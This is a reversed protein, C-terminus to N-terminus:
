IRKDKNNKKGIKKKFKNNLSNNKNIKLFSPEPM